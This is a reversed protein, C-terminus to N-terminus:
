LVLKWFIAFLISLLFKLVLEPLIDFLFEVVPMRNCLFNGGGGSPYFFGLCALLKGVGLFKIRLSLILDYQYLTLVQLPWNWPM